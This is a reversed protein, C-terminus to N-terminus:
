KLIDNEKETNKGINCLSFTKSNFVYGKLDKSTSSAHMKTLEYIEENEWRKKGIYGNYKKINLSVNAGINDIYEVFYDTNKITQKTNFTSDRKEYKINDNHIIINKKSMLSIKGNACFIFWRDKSCDIVIKTNPENVLIINTKVNTIYLDDSLLFNKIKSNEELNIYKSIDKIYKEKTESSLHEYFKIM